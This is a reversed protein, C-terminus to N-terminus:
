ACGGGPEQGRLVFNTMTTTEPLRTVRSRAKGLVAAVQQSNWDVYEFLTGTIAEIVTSRVSQPRKTVRRGGGLQPIHDELSQEIGTTVEALRDLLRDATEAVYCRVDGDGDLRGITVERCYTKPREVVPFECRQCTIGSSRGMQLEPTM